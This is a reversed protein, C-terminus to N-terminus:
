LRTLDSLVMNMHTKLQYFTNLFSNEKLLKSFNPFHSSRKRTSVTIKMIKSFKPLFEIKWKDVIVHKDIV